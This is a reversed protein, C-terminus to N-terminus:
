VAVGRLIEQVVPLKWGVAGSGGGGAAHVFRGMNPYWAMWSRDLAHFGADYPSPGIKHVTPWVSYGLLAMFDVGDTWAPHSVWARGEWNKQMFELAEPCRRVVWMPGGPGANDPSPGNIPAALWSDTPIADAVDESPDVVVVDGDLYVVLDVGRRLLQEAVAYRIWNPALRSRDGQWRIFDARVDYNVAGDVFGEPHWFEEARDIVHEYWASLFTYGHRAAYARMPPHTLGLLDVWPEAADCGTTLLVKKM